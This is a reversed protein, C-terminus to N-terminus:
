VNIHEKRWKEYDEPTEFKMLEEKEEKKETLHKFLSEPKKAGKKHGQNFAITRLADFILALLAQNYTLPDDRLKRKVRSDYGLGLVLTALTDPRIKTYDLIGYTEALDCIVLDESDNLIDALFILKKLRM